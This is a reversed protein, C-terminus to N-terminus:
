LLDQIGLPDALYRKNRYAAIDEAYMSGIGPFGLMKWAGKNRNGGHIPDSFYGLMTLEHLLEFFPGAPVTPLSVKRTELEVLVEARDAPSLADFTMRFGRQVYANVDAIGAQMLESPTMRMQYGQEATGEHFPGQLYLRDGRGYGSSLQRDIFAAVGLDLAGPGIEDAPILTDVAAEIFAAEDINLFVYPAPNAPAAPGSAQAATAGAAPCASMAHSHAGGAAAGASAVPIAASVTGAGALALLARRDLDPADDNNGSM